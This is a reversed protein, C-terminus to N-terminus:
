LAQSVYVESYSAAQWAPDKSQPICITICSHIHAAGQQLVAGTLDSLVQQLMICIHLTALSHPLRTPLKAAGLWSHPPQELIM